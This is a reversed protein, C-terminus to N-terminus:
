ERYKMNQLRKLEWGLNERAIQEYKNFFLESQYISLRSLIKELFSMRGKTYWYDDIHCYEERIRVCYSDFIKQDQGLISLDIDVMMKETESGNPYVDHKTALILKTVEQIYEEPVCIAKLDHEAWDASRKENDKEAPFYIADHYFIALEVWILHSSLLNCIATDKYCSAAYLASSLRDFISVKQEPAYEM